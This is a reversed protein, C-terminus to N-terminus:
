SDLFDGKYIDGNSFYYAGFGNPKNNNFNGVYKENKYKIYM